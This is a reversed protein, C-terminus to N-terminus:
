LNYGCFFVLIICCIKFEHTSVTQGEVMSKFRHRQVVVCYQRLAPSALIRRCMDVIAKFFDTLKLITERVKPVICKYIFTNSKRDDQRGSRSSGDEDLTISSDLHRNKIISLRQPIDVEM